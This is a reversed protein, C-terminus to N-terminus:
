IVPRERHRAVMVVDPSTESVFPELGLSGYVSVEAALEHLLPLIDKQTYPKLPTVHHRMRWEGEVKELLIVHFDIRDPLYDYM